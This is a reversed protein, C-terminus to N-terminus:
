IPVRNQGETYATYSHPGTPKHQALSGRGRRRRQSGGLGAVAAKALPALVLIMDVVSPKTTPLRLEENGKSRGCFGLLM